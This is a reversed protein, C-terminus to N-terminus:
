NKQSGPFFVSPPPLCANVPPAIKIKSLIYQLLKQDKKNQEENKNMKEFNDFALDISLDHLLDASPKKTRLYAELAAMHVGLPKAADTDSYKFYKACSAVEAAVLQKVIQSKKAVKTWKHGPAKRVWWDGGSHVLHTVLLVRALLGFVPLAKKDFMVKGAIETLLGEKISAFIEPNEQEAVDLFNVLPFFDNKFTYYLGELIWLPDVVTAGFIGRLADLIQDDRSHIAHCCRIVEGLSKPDLFKPHKFLLLICRKVMEMLPNAGFRPGLVAKLTTVGPSTTVRRECCLNRGDGRPPMKHPPKKGAPMM